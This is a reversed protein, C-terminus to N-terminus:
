ITQYITARVGRKISPLGFVVITRFFCPERREIFLLPGRARRGMDSNGRATAVGCTGCGRVGRVVRRRVGSSTRVRWPGLM